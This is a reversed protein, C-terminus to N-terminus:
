ALQAITTSRGDDDTPDALGMWPSSAEVLPLLPGLRESGNTDLDSHCLVITDRARAVLDGLVYRLRWDNARLEFAETLREGNWNQMFLPAGFLEATGGQAWLSSGADLWFQWRHTQRTSRYQFINSLLVSPTQDRDGATSGIPFPDATIAGSRLLCVFRDVLGREADPEMVSAANVPSDPSSRAMQRQVDWYHQSSELTARLEVREDYAMQPRWLWDQIIRELIVLANLQGAALAQRVQQLWDLVYGYATSARYGLRDRRQFIDLSVLDPATRDPVYCIDAIMGARVPDIDPSFKSTGLIESAIPPLDMAGSEASRRRPSLMTLMEAIADRDLRDGLRYVLALLTLVARVRPSGSLPRQVNLTRVPVGRGTLITAMAYRSVADLGPAIIVIENAAVQGSRVLDIVTESTQRLLQSRSVTSLKVIDPPLPTFEFPQYVAAFMRDRLRASLGARRDLDEINEPRAQSRLGWLADPDANIGRRISTSQIECQGDLEFTDANFTLTGLRNAQAFVEFLGRSMGPYEDIDDADLGSFRTLLTECYTDSTLLHQRYLGLITGYTLFGHDLTWNFWEIAATQIALAPCAAYEPLGRDLRDAIEDLDIGAATALQLLDLIRRVQRDANVGPQELAGGPELAESWLRRALELETESQLRLPFATVLGRDAAIQPWFLLVEREFFGLPTTMEVPHRGALVKGLRDSLVSRNDGNAALILLPPASQPVRLPPPINAPLQPLGQHIWRDVRDVITEILRQTKGSRTAGEIWRFKVM